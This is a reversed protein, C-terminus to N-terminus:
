KTVLSNDLIIRYGLLKPPFNSSKNHVDFIKMMLFDSVVSSTCTLYLFIFLIERPVHHVRSLSQSVSLYKFLALTMYKLCPM